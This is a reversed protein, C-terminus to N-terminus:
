RASLTLIYLQQKVSAIYSDNNLFAAPLNKSDVAAKVVQAATIRGENFGRMLEASDPIGQDVLFGQHALYALNFPTLTVKMKVEVSPMQMIDQAKAAPAIATASLLLAPLFTLLVKKM